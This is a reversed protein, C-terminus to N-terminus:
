QLGFKQVLVRRLRGKVGVKLEGVFNPDIESVNLYIFKDNENTALLDIESGHYGVSEGGDLRVTKAPADVYLTHDEHRGRLSSFLMSDGPKIGSASDSQYPNDTNGVHIPFCIPDLGDRLELWFAKKSAENTVMELTKTSGIENLMDIVVANFLAGEDDENRVEFYNPDYCDYEADLKMVLYKTTSSALNLTVEKEGTLTLVFPGQYQPIPGISPTGMTASLYAVGVLAIMGGGLSLGKKSKQPKDEGQAGEEPEKKNDAM